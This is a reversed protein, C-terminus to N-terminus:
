GYYQRDVISEVRRFDTEGGYVFMGTQFNYGAQVGGAFGQTNLHPPVAAGLLDFPLPHINAVLSPDSDGFGGGINGGFYFGTWNYVPPPPPAAHAPMAASCTLAVASASALLTKRM